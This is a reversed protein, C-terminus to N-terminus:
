PRVGPTANQVAIALPTAPAAGGIVEDVTNTTANSIWINGSTDIALGSPGSISPDTITSSLAGATLVTVTHNGNAVWVNELGDIALASAGSLGVNSYRTVFTGTDAFLSLSNGSEDISWVFGGGDVAMGVGGGSTAGSQQIGNNYLSAVSGNSNAVFVNMNQVTLLFSSSASAYRSDNPTGTATLLYLGSGLVTSADISFANSSFFPQAKYVITSPVSETADLIGSGLASGTYIKLMAPSWMVTSSAQSISLSTSGTSPYWAVTNAPTYSASLTQSGNNTPTYNLAAAGNFLTASGLSATVGNITVMFTVTGGPVSAPTTSDAVTATIVTGAPFTISGPSTTVTTTTNDPVYIQQSVTGYSGGYQSDGEYTATITHTGGLILNSTSFAAVGNVLPATGIVTRTSGLTDSFIISGTVAGPSVTGTFTTNTGTMQPSLSTTVATTTTIPQYFYPLASIRGTLPSSDGATFSTETGAEDGVSAFAYVIHLGFNQAPVNFTGTSGNPTVRTWPGSITDIQYYIAKPPGYSSTVTATFTPSPNQTQFLNTTSITGLGSVAALATTLPVTSPTSETVTKIANGGDVAARAYPFFVQGTTPDVDLSFVPQLGNIPVSQNNGGDISSAYNSTTSGVLSGSGSVYIRNSAADLALAIPGGTVTIATTANSSDIVTVTYPPSDTKRDASNAVYTKGTMPSTVVATPGSGVAVTVTSLTIGDIVTVTNDTTNTVYIKNTKTNVAIGGPGSGVPVSSTSFDVGDVVTISSAASYSVYIKNTVPNVAVLYPSASLPVTATIANTAGDIVIMTGPSSGSLIYVRNTVPNVAVGEPSAVAILTTANTAGDVVMLGATGATNSVYIKNTVPNLAAFYAKAGLTVTAVAKTVPNFVTMTGADTPSTSLPTTTYVLHSVPNVLTANPFQGSQALGTTTTTIANQNCDVISISGLAGQTSDPNSEGQSNQAFLHNTLPNMAMGATGQGVIAKTVNNTVGDVAAVVRTSSLYITNTASNVVVGIPAFAIPSGGNLSTGSITTTAATNTAGDISTYSGSANATYIKNTVQNVAIENPQSGVAVSTVANTAGNIVSVTNATKNVVYIRNTITNVAIASPGADTQISVTTNTAGDIVTVNNAGNDAVYIKNTVPNVAVAVPVTGVTVTSTSNNTGDIVTVSSDSFNTVYIKNSQSNVAISLPIKGLAATTVANTAGDVIYLIGPGNSGAQSAVYIKNTVPNVALAIGGVTTITSTASTLGDIITLSGTTLGYAKNTVPNVVVGKAAATLPVTGTLVQAPSSACVGLVLGALLSRRFSKGPFASSLMAAARRHLFRPGSRKFHTPMSEKTSSPLAAHAM